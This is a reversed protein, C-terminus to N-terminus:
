ATTSRPATLPARRFPSRFPDGIVVTQWSLNPMALYFAEALNFGALYAPFLIEPRITSQLYPDAVHGAAGTVGERILDGILTQPSGAFMARPNKWDGSPVWDAPPPEFTRGDSSVFTAALAGPVVEDRISSPSQEPREIGVLLVGVCPRHASGSLESEELDWVLAM